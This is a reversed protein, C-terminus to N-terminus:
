QSQSRSGDPSGSIPIGTPLPRAAVRFGARHAAAQLRRVESFSDPYVWFTLAAGPDSTRLITQYRSGSSLAIETTESELEPEPRITWRTVGIRIMAHGHRLEDALRAPRREVTYEMVFGDVPGVQGEHKPFRSMSRGYRSMQARIRQKLGQLPIRAVRGNRVHFHQETGRVVRGVPTLRHRVEIVEPSVPQKLVELRQRAVQDERRLAELQTRVQTDEITLGAVVKRRDIREGRAQVLEKLKTELDAQAKSLLQLKVDLQDGLVEVHEVLGTVEDTRDVISPVSAVTQPWPAPEVVGGPPPKLVIEDVVPEVEAVPQSSETPLEVPARSARVGAVVILIILIGVINAVIDLFSDDGATQQSTRPSRNM